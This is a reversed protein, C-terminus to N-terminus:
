EGGVVGYEDLGTASRTQLADGGQEHGHLQGNPQGHLEDALTTVPRRVLDCYWALGVAGVAGFLLVPTAGVADMVPGFLLNGVSVSGGFAMFWLSMVRARESNHLNQQFVTMMSTTMAFYCFGLAFGVAFAPEPRRLVAFAALSVAFGILLPPILRRKDYRALVTGVALAGVMAGLGWTAYLWKYTSGDTDLGLNTRAITPFLGVFPLCVFSFMFMALLIRSLVTRSAAIRLGTTLNEWGRADTAKDIHPFAVMKLAIVIFVYTVANIVLIAPVGFGFSMLAAAIVPGLVRSGNIMVSNLSVAGPLDVPDVLAPVVGQMAPANLANAVGTVLQVLLLWWVSADIHVLAAMGLTLVMAAVQMSAIWPKRPFRDALVGGPISLVLLPGLQAFVFMGVMAGSETRRDIYAPLVVTQMWTGINSAFSGLWIIRFARTRLAAAATGRSRDFSAEADVASV